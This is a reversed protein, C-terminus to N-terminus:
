WDRSFATTLDIKLHCWAVPSLFVDKTNQATLSPKKWCCFGLVAINGYLFCPRAFVLKIRCWFVLCHSKKGEGCHCRQFSNQPVDSLDGDRVNQIWSLWLDEFVKFLHWKLTATLATCYNQICFFPVLFFIIVNWMLPCGLLNRNESLSFCINSQPFECENLFLELGRCM